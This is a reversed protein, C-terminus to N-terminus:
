HIMVPAAEGEGDLEDFAAQETDPTANVFFFAIAASVVLIGVAWWIATTYGNVMGQLQVLEPPTSGGMHAGIYSTTASAAITNLLATGIAGGVQQSTNIMASAIGSDRPEVGFTALSMAPMFTTGLGLGLLIQAPLLLAVYSSDVNMQTLLLMGVAAVLLGPTMLYRAPVRTMLRAGLQTSGIVMGAVMPLFAVGSRIPSYGKVIQLYYTLFLFLGFMAIVALGLALYVGGRNRELVVRLPLLPEKVKREVLVFAVLLLGTLVFMSVTGTDSWGETEARTFGYVLAVLGLTGLLTGPLDLPARNRTGDPEHVATVAGVFAIAAIPINVFFVWRWDLYETLIGGLILGLAAGGGAIAGFIGFAKAREKGDTFMVALLSLAAPALLAGFVGQLARSAFMLAENVAAGGLASAAAFGILGTLFTNKRGWMDAIRGGLLLLSGFALAYATIVWQRNADSIGLDAQASPLAINVITADLVVMLQALAIFALARWRRPDPLQTEPM